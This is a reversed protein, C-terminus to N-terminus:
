IRRLGGATRTDPKFSMPTGMDLKNMRQLKVVETNYDSLFRDSLNLYNPEKIARKRWYRGLLFMKYIRTNPTEVKSAMSTLKTFKKWYYIKISGVGSTYPTPFLVLENTSEDIAVYLLDDNPYFTNDYNIYEMEEMSIRRYDDTRQQWTNTFAMRDFKLLNAPLPIRNINLTTSLPASTKLFRYPRRSQSTLDDNVENMLDLVEDVTMTQQQTDGVEKFFENVLAGATGSPYGSGAIPDSLDSETSDFTSYFSVKYYYSSLGALDDYMTQTNANDVDVNVTALINYSGDIGTTSRYFKVQDYKIAYVPDDANHSFLTSSVTLDTGNANVGSAGITVIETRENGMEGLLIKQNNQFRDNNRVQIATVAASYANALYSKELKETSPNQIYLKM